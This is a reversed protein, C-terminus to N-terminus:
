EVEIEVYINGNKPYDRYDWVVRQVRMHHSMTKVHVFDGARPLAEATIVETALTFVEGDSLATFKATVNM